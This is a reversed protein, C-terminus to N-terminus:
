RQREADRLAAAAQVPDKLPKAAQAPDEGGGIPGVSRLNVVTKGKVLVDGGVNQNSNALTTRIQALTVGYRRMREPAPHIQYRKVAGGSSLVDAVGPLRRFERDLNWDQLARLDHAAYVPRGEADRPGILLYRLAKGGPQWSGLQPTVGRPL